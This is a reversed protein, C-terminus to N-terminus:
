WNPPLAAGIIAAAAAWLLMSRISQRPPILHACIVGLGLGLSSAARPHHPWLILLLSFPLVAIACKLPGMAFTEGVRNAKEIGRGERM